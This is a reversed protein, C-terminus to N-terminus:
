TGEESSTRSNSNVTVFRCDKTNTIDVSFSCDSETFILVDDIDEAGIKKCYVRFFLFYFLHCQWFSLSDSLLGMFCNHYRGTLDNNIMQYQISCPRGMKLGHWALLEMLMQNQFFADKELTKSKFCSSKMVQQISLIHLFTTTQHFEVHAWM